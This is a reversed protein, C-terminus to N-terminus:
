IHNLFFYCKQTQTTLCHTTVLSPFYDHIIHQHNKQLTMFKKHNQLKETKIERTRSSCKISDIYKELFSTGLIIFKTIAVNFILTFSTNNLTRSKSLDPYLFLKITGNSQLRSNNAASLVFTPAKLQIKPYEKIGLTM